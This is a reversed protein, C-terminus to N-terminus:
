ILVGSWKLQKVQGCASMQIQMFQLQVYKKNCVAQQKGKIKVQFSGM